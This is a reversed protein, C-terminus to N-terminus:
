APSFFQASSEHYRKAIEYFAQLQEYTRFTYRNKIQNFPDKALEVQFKTLKDAPAIVLFKVHELQRVQYLRLLGKTV